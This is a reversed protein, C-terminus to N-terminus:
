LPGTSAGSATEIPVTAPDGLSGQQSAAHVAGSRQSGLPAFACGGAVALAALLPAFQPIWGAMPSGVHCRATRPRDSLWPYSYGGSLAPFRGLRCWEARASM